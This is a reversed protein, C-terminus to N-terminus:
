PTSKVNHHFKLVNFVLIWQNKPPIKNNDFTEMYM